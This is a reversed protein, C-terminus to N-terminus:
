TTWPTTIMNQSTNPKNLCPIHRLQWLSTVNCCFKHVMPQSHSNIGWTQKYPTLHHHWGLLLHSDFDLIVTQHDGTLTALQEFPLLTTSLLAHKMKPSGLCLDITSNRCNYTAPRTSNLHWFQQDVLNTKPTLWRIGNQKILDTIPGNIDMCLLVAKQHNHWTKVLLILDPLFQKCFDPHPAM